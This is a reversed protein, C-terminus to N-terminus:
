FNILQDLRIVLTFAMSYVPYGSCRLREFVQQSAHEKYIGRLLDVSKNKFGRCIEAWTSVAWSSFHRAVRLGVERSYSSLLTYSSKKRNPFYTRSDQYFSEQHVRLIQTWFREFAFSHSICHFLVRSFGSSFGDIDYVFDMLSGILMGLNVRSILTRCRLNGKPCLLKRNFDSLHFLSDFSWGPKGIRNPGGLIQNGIRHVRPGVGHMELVAWNRWRLKCMLAVWGAVMALIPITGAVCM